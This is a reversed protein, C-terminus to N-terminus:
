SDVRCEMLPWGAKRRCGKPCAEGGDQLELLSVRDRGDSPAKMFLNQVFSAVSQLHKFGYPEQRCPSQRGALAAPVAQSSRKDALAARAQMQTPQQPM